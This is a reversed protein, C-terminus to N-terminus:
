RGRRTSRRPPDAEARSIMGTASSRVVLYHNPALAMLAVQRDDFEAAITEGPALKVAGTVPNATQVSQSINTVTPIM